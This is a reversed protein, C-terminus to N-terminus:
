KIDKRTLSTSQETTSNLITSSKEINKPVCKIEPYIEDNENSELM